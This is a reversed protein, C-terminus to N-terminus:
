LVLGHVTVTPLRVPTGVTGPMIWLTEAVKSPVRLAVRNGWKAFQVEMPRGELTSICHIYAIEIRLDPWEVKWAAPADAGHEGHIAEARAAALRFASRSDRPNVDNAPGM